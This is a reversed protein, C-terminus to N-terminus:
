ASEEMLGRIRSLTTRGVLQDNVLAAPGLACNGLCYVPVVEVDGRRSRAHVDLDMESRLAEVLAASGAAQCAEAVCVRVLYPAPTTARLDTYFTFVGYVEARSVNCVVTVLEIAEDCVHGFTEQISQLARLVSNEVGGDASLIRRADESVFEPWPAGM